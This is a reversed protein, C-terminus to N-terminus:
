LSARFQFAIFVEFWVKMKDLWFLYNNTTIRKNRNDKMEFHTEINKTTTAQTKLLFYCLNLNWEMTLISWDISFHGLLTYFKLSFKLFRAVFKYKLFLKQWTKTNWIFNKKVSRAAIPSRVSLQSSTLFVLSVHWIQIFAKQRMCCPSPICHSCVGKWEFHIGFSPSMPVGCMTYGSKINYAHISVPEFIISM